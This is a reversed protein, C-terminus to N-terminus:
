LLKIEGLQSTSLCNDLVVEHHMFDVTDKEGAASMQGVDRASM